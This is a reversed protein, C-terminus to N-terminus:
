DDALIIVTYTGTTDHAMLQLVPQTGDLNTVAAEGSKSMLRFDTTGSENLKRPTSGSWSYALKRTNVLSVVAGSADRYNTFTLTTAATGATGTIRVVQGSTYGNSSELSLVKLRATGSKDHFLADVTIRGDISM